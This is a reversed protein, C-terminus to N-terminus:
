KKFRKDPTGDKKLVVEKTEKYRKDPTGDKKLVVKSEKVKADTAKTEQKLDKAAKETKVAVKKLGDQASATISFGLVALVALFVKKM